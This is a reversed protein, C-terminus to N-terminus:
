GDKGGGPLALRQAEAMLEDADLGYLKAIDAAAEQVVHLNVNQTPPGEVRDMIFKVADLWDRAKLPMIYEAGEPNKFKVVGTTVAEWVVRIMTEAYTVGDPLNAPRTMGHDELAVSLWRPPMQYAWPDPKSLISAPTNRPM